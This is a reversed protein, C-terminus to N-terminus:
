GVVIGAPQAFVKSGDAVLGFLPENNALVEYTEKDQDALLELKWDDPDLEATQLIDTPTTDLTIEIDRRTAMDDEGAGPIVVYIRKTDSM